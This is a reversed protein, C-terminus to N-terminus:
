SEKAAWERVKKRMEKEKRESQRQDHQMTRWLSWVMLVIVLTQSHLQALIDVHREWRVFADAKDVLLERIQDPHRLAYYHVHGFKVYVTDGHRAHAERWFGLFDGQMRRLSRMGFAHDRPGPPRITKTM